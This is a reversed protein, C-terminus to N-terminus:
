AQTKHVNLKRLFSAQRPKHGNVSGARNHNGLAAARAAESARETKQGPLRHGHQGALKIIGSLVKMRWSCAAKTESFMQGQETITMRTFQEIALARGIAFLRKMMKLPAFGEALVWSFVMRSGLARHKWEYDGCADRERPELFACIDEAHADYYANAANQAANFPKGEQALTNAHQQKAMWKTHAEVRRQKVAEDVEEEFRLLEDFPMDIMAPERIDGGKSHWSRMASHMNAEFVALRQDNV